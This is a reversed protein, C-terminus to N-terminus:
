HPPLTVTVRYVYGSLLLPPGVDSPTIHESATMAFQPRCFQYKLGWRLLHRKNQVAKLPLPNSRVAFAGLILHFSVNHNIELETVRVNSLPSYITKKKAPLIFAM